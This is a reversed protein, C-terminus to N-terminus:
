EDYVQFELSKLIKFFKIEVNRYAFYKWLDVHFLCLFYYLIM